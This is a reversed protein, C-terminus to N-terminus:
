NELSLNIYALVAGLISIIIPIYIMETKTYNTYLVQGVIMLLAFVFVMVLATQEKFRPALFYSPVVFLIGQFFSSAYTVIYLNASSEPSVILNIVKEYALPVFFSLLISIPLISIWLLFNKM